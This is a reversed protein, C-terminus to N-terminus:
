IQLPNQQMAPASVNQIALENAADVSQSLMEVAGSQSISSQALAQSADSINGATTAVSDAVRLLKAFMFDNNQVLHYLNRGLSDGNSRIEAYVTLDGEAVRQIIRVNKRITETMTRFSEIMRNIEIANSPHAVKEIDLKLNDVCTSFQKSWRAVTLIPASIRRSLRRGVSLSLVVAFLRTLILFLNSLLATTQTNTKISDTRTQYSNSIIGLQQGIIEVKPKFDIGYREYTVNKGTHSQEILESAELHIEQHPTVIEALAKSIEPNDSIENGANAIWKGLACSDPDLSGAFEDGVTISTSLQELWKYHATIVQQSAYQQQQCEAVRDYGRQTLFLCLISIAVLLAIIGTLLFYGKLIQGQITQGKQSKINEM